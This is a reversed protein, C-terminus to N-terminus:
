NKDLSCKANSLTHESGSNPFFKLVLINSVHLIRTTLTRGDRMYLHDCVTCVWFERSSQNLEGLKKVFGRAPAGSNNEFNANRTNKKYKSFFRGSSLYTPLMNGNKRYQSFEVAWQGLATRCQGTPTRSGTAGLCHPLTDCFTWQGSGWPFPAWQGRATNYHVTCSGSGVPGHGLYVAHGGSGM